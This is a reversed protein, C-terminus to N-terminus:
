IEIGRLHPEDVLCDDLGYRRALRNYTAFHSPIEDASRARWREQQGLEVAAQFPGIVEEIQEEDGPPSGLNRIDDFIHFDIGALLSSRVADEFRQVKGEGEDQWSTYKAWNDRVTVWAERCIQNVQRTFQAKTMQPTAATMTTSARVEYGGADAGSGNEGCGAGAALGAAALGALAALLAPGSRARRTTEGTM